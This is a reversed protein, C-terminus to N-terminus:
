VHTEGKQDSSLCVPVTKPCGHLARPTGDGPRTMREVRDRRAAMGTQPGGERERDHTGLRLDRDAKSHVTM